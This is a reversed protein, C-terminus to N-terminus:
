IVDAGGNMLLNVGNIQASARSLFLVTDAVEETTVLRRFPSAAIADEVQREDLHSTLGTQMMWPSICNATINSRINEAAWSRSLSLLYAKNAVYESLGIPPKNLYSTLITVIKGSKKKRFAKIAQQTIRLTPMVNSRFSDLFAQPDSQHFHRSAMGPLANNVLVDLDLAPIREVLGQLSAEDEFNCAIGQADPFQAMIQAAADASRHFTFFVQFGGASLFKRTIAYGLGSAGGTILIRTIDAEGPM